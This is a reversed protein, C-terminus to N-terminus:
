RGSTAANFDMKYYLSTLEQGFYEEITKCTKDLHDLKDKFKNMKDLLEYFEQRTGTVNRCFFRLEKAQEYTLIKESKELEM